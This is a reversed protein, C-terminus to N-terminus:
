RPAVMHNSEIVGRLWSVLDSARAYIMGCHHYIQDLFMTHMELMQNFRGLSEATQTFWLDQQHGPAGMLGGPYGYAGGSYMGGVVSWGCVSPGPRLRVEMAVLSVVM